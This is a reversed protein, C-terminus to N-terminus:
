KKRNRIEHGFPIDACSIIKVGYKDALCTRRVTDLSRSTIYCDAETFLEYEKNHDGIQEIIEGKGCYVSSVFDQLKREYCELTDDSQLYVILRGVPYKCYGAIVHKWFPFPDDFDPFFLLNPEEFKLPASRAVAPPFVRHKEVFAEIPLAFDENCAARKEDDWYWWAINQLEAIVEESFRYKIIKAPNGGVVAFPPVDKIVHSNAAIVAGNGIVVGSMITAAYGIWVNNQIIIQGKRPMSSSLTTDTEEIAARSYDKSMNLLLHVSDAISCYRGIHINDFEDTHITIDVAYSNKGVTCFPFNPKNPLDALSHRDATISQYPIAAKLIM